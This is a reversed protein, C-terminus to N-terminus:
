SADEIKKSVEERAKMGRIRGVLGSPCTITNSM